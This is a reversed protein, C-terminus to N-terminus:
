GKKKQNSAKSLQDFVKAMKSFEDQMMALFALGDPTLGYFKRPHGKHGETQWQTKLVGESSMRSLLPYLTGEKVNLDLRHLKEILDFGYLREHKQIVLLICMELYGKRVQTKWNEMGSPM